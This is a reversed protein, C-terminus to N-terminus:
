SIVYPDLVYELISGVGEHLGTVCWIFQTTLEHLNQLTLEPIEAAASASQIRAWFARVEPDRVVEDNAFYRSMYGKVFASITEYLRLGDTAWPFADGMGQAGKRGIMAPVTQYRMMAVSSEMASQLAKYELASARHVFGREPCLSFTANYNITVTRWTFVKLLVRLPHERSLHSRAALTVYNGIMWHVGVLHDTVTTGTLLSCRWAWKAHEWDADGPRVDRQAHSWHIRVPRQDSDFYAIAGYREFGERVSLSSMFAWDNAWVAADPDDGTIPLTRLAGLGAFAIRAMAEDSSMEDWQHNPEGLVEGVPLLEEFAAKAEAVSAWREDRDVLPFIHSRLLRLAAARPIGQAPWDEDLTPLELNGFPLNTTPLPGNRKPALISAATPPSRNWETVASRTMKIFLLTHRDLTALRGSGAKVAAQLAVESAEPPGSDTSLNPNLQRTLDLTGTESM